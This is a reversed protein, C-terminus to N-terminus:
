TAEDLKPHPQKLGCNILFVEIISKGFFVVLTLLSFPYFGNNRPLNKKCGLSFMLVTAGSICHHCLLLLNYGKQRPEMNVGVFFDWLTVVHCELHELLVGANKLAPKLYDSIPIKTRGLQLHASVSSHHYQDM